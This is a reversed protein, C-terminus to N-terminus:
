IKINECNILTRLSQNVSKNNIQISSEFLQSDYINKQNNFSQNLNFPYDLNNNMNYNVYNNNINNNISNSINNNNNDNIFSDSDNLINNDNMNNNNIGISNNFTQINNLININKNKIESLKQIIDNNFNTNEKRQNILFELIYTNTLLNINGGQILNKYDEIKKIEDKENQIKDLICLLEKKKNYTTNDEDEFETVKRRIKRIDEEKKDKRFNKNYFKEPESNLIKNIKRFGYMNLERVFTEYNNHRCIKPLIISSFKSPNFIAINTGDNNWSIIKKYRKSKLIGFLKELFFKPEEKEKIKKSLLKM